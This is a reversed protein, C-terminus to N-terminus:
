LGLGRLAIRARSVGVGTSRVGRRDVGSPRRIGNREGIKRMIVRVSVVVKEVGDAGGVYVVFSRM